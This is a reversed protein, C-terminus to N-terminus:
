TARCSAASWRNSANWFTRPWASVSRSFRTRAPSAVAEAAPKGTKFDLISVAAGANADLAIGVDAVELLQRLVEVDRRGVQRLDGRLRRRLRRVVDDVVAVYIPAASSM